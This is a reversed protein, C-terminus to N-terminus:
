NKGRQIERRTRILLIRMDDPLEALDEETMVRWTHTEDISIFSACEACVTMCGPRPNNNPNLPHRPDFSLGTRCVPCLLAHREMLLVAEWEQAINRFLTPIHSRLDEPMKMSVGTGGSGGIVIMICAEARFRRRLEETASDYESNPEAINVVKRRM